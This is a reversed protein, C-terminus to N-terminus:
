ISAAVLGSASASGRKGIKGSIKSGVARGVRGKGCSARSLRPKLARAPLAYEQNALRM